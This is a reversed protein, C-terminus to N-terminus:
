YYDVSLASHASHGVGGFFFVEIQGRHSKKKIKKKLNKKIGGTSMGKSMLLLVSLAALFRALLLLCRCFPLECTEIGSM